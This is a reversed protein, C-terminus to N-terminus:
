ENREGVKQLPWTWASKSAIARIRNAQIELRIQGSLTGVMLASLARGITLGEAVCYARFRRYVDADVNKLLKNQLKM